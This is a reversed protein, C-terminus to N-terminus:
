QRPLSLFIRDRNVSRVIIDRGGIKVPRGHLAKPIRHRYAYASDLPLIVVDLVAEGHDVGKYTLRLEGYELPQDKELHLKGDFGAKSSSGGDGPHPRSYRPDVQEGSAVFLIFYLFFLAIAGFFGILIWKQGRTQESM